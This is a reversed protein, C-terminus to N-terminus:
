YGIHDTAIIEGPNIRDSGPQEFNAALELSSTESLLSTAAGALLELELEHKGRGGRSSVKLGCLMEEHSVAVASEKNENRLRWNAISDLIM